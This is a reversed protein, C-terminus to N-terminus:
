YDAEILNQVILSSAFQRLMGLLMGHSLVSGFPTALGGRWFGALVCRGTSRSNSSSTGGRERLCVELSPVRALAPQNSEEVIAIKGVSFGVPRVGEVDGGGVGGESSYAM